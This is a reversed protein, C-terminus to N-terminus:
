DHKCSAKQDILFKTFSWKIGDAKYTDPYKESLFNNMFEGSVIKTDFGQFLSQATLFQFIPHANYHIKIDYFSM